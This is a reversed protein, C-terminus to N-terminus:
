GYAFPVSVEANDYDSDGYSVASLAKHLASSTDLMALQFIADSSRATYAVRMGSAHASSNSSAPYAIKSPM